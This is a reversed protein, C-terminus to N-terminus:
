IGRLDHGEAVMKGDSEARVVSTEKGGPLRPVQRRPQETSRGLTGTYGQVEGDSYKSKMPFTNSSSNEVELWIIQRM